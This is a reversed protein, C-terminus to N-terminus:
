IHPELATIRAGAQDLAQQVTTIQGVWDNPNTPTYGLTEANNLYLLQAGDILVTKADVIISNVTALVIANSGIAELNSVSSNLLTLVNNIFIQPDSTTQTTINAFFNSSSSEIGSFGNLVTEFKVEETFTSSLLYAFANTTSFKRFFYTNEIVLPLFLNTNAGGNGHFETDAQVSCESIYLSRFQNTKFDFNVANEKESILYLGILGNSVKKDSFQLEMHEFRIFTAQQVGSLTVNPPIVIHKEHFHGPGIDIEVYKEAQKRRALKLAHGLTRLPLKDSGDNSDKGEKRVYLVSRSHHCKKRIMENFYKLRDQMRLKQRFESIKFEKKDEKSEIKIDNKEEAKKTTDSKDVVKDIKPSDEVIVIYRKRKHKTSAM